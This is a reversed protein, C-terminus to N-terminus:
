LLIPKKRHFFDTMVSGIADEDSPGEVIVSIVKKTPKSM